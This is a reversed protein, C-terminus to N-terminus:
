MARTVVVMHVDADDARYARLVDATGITTTVLAIDSV